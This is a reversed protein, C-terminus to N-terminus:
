KLATIKVHDISPVFVGKSTIQEVNKIKVEAQEFLNLPMKLEDVEKSTYKKSFNYHELCKVKKTIDQATQYLGHQLSINGKSLRAVLKREFNKNFLSTIKM